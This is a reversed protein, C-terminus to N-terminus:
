IYIDLNKKKEFREVVLMCHRVRGYAICGSQGSVSQQVLKWGPPLQLSLFPFDNDCM